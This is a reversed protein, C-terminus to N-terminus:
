DMSISAECKRCDKLEERFQIVLETTLWQHKGSPLPLMAYPIGNILEWRGEWQCYEKYTYNPLNEKLLVFGM